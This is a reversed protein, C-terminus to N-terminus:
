GRTRPLEQRDRHDEDRVWIQWQDSGEDAHADIGQTLLYATFRRATAESDLTGIQRM